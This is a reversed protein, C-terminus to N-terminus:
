ILMSLDSPIEGLRKLIVAEGVTELDVNFTQSYALAGANGAETALTEARSLAMELHACEEGEGPLLNGGVWVFPLAVYYTIDAM